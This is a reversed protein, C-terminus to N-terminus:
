IMLTQTNAEQLLQCEKRFITLRIIKWININLCHLYTHNIVNTTSYRPVHIHKANYITGYHLHLLQQPIDVLKFEQLQLFQISWTNDTQTSCFINGEKWFNFLLLKQNFYTYVNDWISQHDLARTFIFMERSMQKQKYARPTHHFLCEIGLSVSM